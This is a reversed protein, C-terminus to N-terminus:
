DAKLLTRLEIIRHNTFSTKCGDETIEERRKLWKTQEDRLIARRAEPLKARLQGYVKNLEGEPDDSLATFSEEIVRANQLHFQV